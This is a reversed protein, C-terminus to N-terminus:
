QRHKEVLEEVNDGPTPLARQQKALVFSFFFISHHLHQLEVLSRSPIMLFLSVCTAVGCALPTSHLMLQVIAIQKCAGLFTFGVPSVEKQLHDEDEDEDESTNKLTLM